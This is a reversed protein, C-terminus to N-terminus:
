VNLVNRRGRNHMINTIERNESDLINISSGSREQETGAIGLRQLRAANMARGAMLLALRKIDKPVTAMGYTYTFRVQKQGIPALFNAKEIRARGTEADVSYNDTGETVLDTYSPTLSEANQNVEFKTVSVIPANRLVFDKQYDYSVDHYEDTATYYSGDNSDFTQGLMRDIEAEVGTGVREIQETRIGAPSTTANYLDLDYFDLFDQVTFYRLEDSGTSSVDILTLTTTLSGGSVTTHQGYGTKGGHVVYYTIVDGITYGSALNALNLLGTGTGDTTVNITESTTNDRANLVVGVLPTSGDTDYVTVRIIYPSSPM